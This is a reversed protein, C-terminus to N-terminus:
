PLVAQVIGRKGNVRWLPDENDLAEAQGPSLGVVPDSKMTRLAVFPAPFYRILEALPLTTPWRSDGLLRRYNADGKIVVLEAKALKEKLQDPMDWFFLDSNWFHDSEIILQNTERYRNLRSGLETILPLNTQGTIAELAMDIDAPTADSVFFPHSKANLTVRNVWGFCLFFDALALDLLLETGSNDCIFTVERRGGRNKLVFRRVHEMVAATDDVLLNEQEQDITIERGTEEAVKNYSLDIRNGWVCHHVMAWFSADTNDNSRRLAIDLVQWPMNSALEERKQPLFPDVGQWLNVSENESGYYGTAELLRRYFFAEAFYWPLQFWTNEQFQQWAAYWHDGGPLGPAPPQIPQQALIEERLAELEAV